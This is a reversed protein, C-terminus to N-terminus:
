RRRAPRGAVWDQAQCRHLRVARPDGTRVRGPPQRPRDARGAAPRHRDARHGPHPALRHHPPEARDPRDPVAVHLSAAVRGPHHHPGRRQQPQPVPRGSRRLQRRRRRRGPEHRLGPGRGPHGRLVGRRGRVGGAPGAAAPQLPSRHRHHGVQGARGRRRRFQGPALRGGVVPVHGQGGAQHPRRVEAGAVGCARGTGRRVPGGSLGAPERDSVHNGGPRGARNGRGPDHGAGRIRRLGFRGPRGPGRGGGAPRVGCRSLPRGRGGHGARRAPCARGPEEAAARRPHHRGAPRRRASGPRARDSEGRALSGPGALDVGAPQAGAGGAAAPYRSRVTLRDADPGRRPADPDLAPAPIHALDPRQPRTRPGHRRAAARRSGGPGARGLHGGRDPLCAARYAHWDRGPVPVPQERRHAHRLAAEFCSFPFANYIKNEFEEVPKNKILVIFLDNNDESYLLYSLRESYSENKLHFGYFKHLSLIQSFIEGKVYTFDDPNSNPNLRLKETFILSYSPKKDPDMEVNANMGYASGILFLLLILKKIM